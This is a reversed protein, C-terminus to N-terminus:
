AVTQHDKDAVSMTRTKMVAIGVVALGIIILVAIGSGSWVEPFVTIVLATAAVWAWDIWITMRAFRKRLGKHLGMAFLDVAWLLLAIGVAFYIEASVTGMLEAVLDSFVILDLALILSLTGDFMLVKALKNSTKNSSATKNVGILQEIQQM